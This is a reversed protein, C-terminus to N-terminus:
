PHNGDMGYFVHCADAAPAAPAALMAAKAKRLSIAIQEHQSTFPTFSAAMFEYLRLVEVPVCVKGDPVSVQQAPADNLRALQTHLERRIADVEKAWEPGHRQELKVSSSEWNSLAHLVDDARTIAAMLPEPMVVGQAKAESVPAAYAIPLEVSVRSSLSALELYKAELELIRADRLGVLRERNRVAKQLGAIQEGFAKISGNKSRNDAELRAITEDRKAIEGELCAILEDARSHIRLNESKVDENM